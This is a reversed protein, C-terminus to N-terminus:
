NPGPNRVIAQWDAAGDLTRCDPCPQQRLMTEIRAIRDATAPHSSIWAPMAPDGNKKDLKRFFTLMGDAKIHARQLALFGYRDAEEEMDRSFYMAGAQRALVAAAGSLDGVTVGVVAALGLSSAMQRLAHRREVHQVEHALVAALEDPGGTQELLATHVVIIGGPVAFANVTQDKKLLWQYHYASGATLRKGIREVAQQAPGDDILQGDLRLQALAIKGLQEEASVPIRDVLWGAARPYAWWAVAALLVAAGLLGLIWGWIHQGNRGRHRWKIFQPALSPPAAAMLLAVGVPDLPKFASQSGDANLWNLFLEPQEMGGVSVVLAAAPVDALAVYGGQPASAPAPPPAPAAPAGPAFPDAEAIFREGEFRAAVPLGAPPHGPGFLLGAIEKM